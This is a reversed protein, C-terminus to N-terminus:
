EEDGSWRLLSLPVPPAEDEESSRVALELLPTPLLLLREQRRL